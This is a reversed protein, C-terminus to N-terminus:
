SPLPTKCEQDGFMKVSATSNFDLTASGYGVYNSYPLAEAYFMPRQMTGPHVVVQTGGSFSRDLQLVGLGEGNPWFFRESEADVNPTDHGDGGRLTSNAGGAVNWSWDMFDFSQVSSQHVSIQGSLVPFGPYRAHMLDALDQDDVILKLLVDM